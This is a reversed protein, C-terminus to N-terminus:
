AYIDETHITLSPEPFPTRESGPGYFRWRRELSYRIQSIGCFMNGRALVNFADLDLDVESPLNAVEGWEIGTLLKIQKKYKTLMKRAARVQGITLWEEKKKALDKGFASDVGNFGQADRQQAGDCVGSLARLARHCARRTEIWAAYQAATLLILPQQAM